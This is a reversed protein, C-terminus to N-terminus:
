MALIAECQITLYVLDFKYLHSAAYFLTQPIAVYYLILVLVHCEPM